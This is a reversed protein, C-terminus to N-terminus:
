DFCFYSWELETDLEGWRTWVEKGPKECMENWRERGNTNKWAKKVMYGFYNEM